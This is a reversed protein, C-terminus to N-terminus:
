HLSFYIPYSPDKLGEEAMQKMVGTSTAALKKRFALSNDYENEKSKVFDEKSSNGKLKIYNYKGKIKDPLTDDMHKLLEYLYGSFKTVDSKNKATYCYHNVRLNEKMRQRTFTQKIEIKSAYPGLYEKIVDREQSRLDADENLYTLISKM